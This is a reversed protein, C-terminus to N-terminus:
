IGNKQVWVTGDKMYHLILTPLHIPQQSWLNSLFTTSIFTSIPTATPLFLRRKLTTWYHKRWEKVTCLGSIAALFGLIATDFIIITSPALHLSNLVLLGKLPLEPADTAAAAAAATATTSLITVFTSATRGCGGTSTGSLFALVFSPLPLTSLRAPPYFTVTDLCYSKQSQRRHEWSGIGPPLWLGTRTNRIDLFRFRLLHCWQFDFQSSKTGLTFSWWYTISREQGQSSSTM